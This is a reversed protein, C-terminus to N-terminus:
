SARRSFTCTADEKKNNNSRAPSKYILSALTGVAKRALLSGNTVIKISVNM